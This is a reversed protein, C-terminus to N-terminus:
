RRRWGKRVAEAAYLGVVLVVFAGVPIGVFLVLLTDLLDEKM